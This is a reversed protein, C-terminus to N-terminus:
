ALWACLTSRFIKTKSLAVCQGLRKSGVTPSFLFMLVFFAILPSWLLVVVLWSVVVVASPSCCAHSAEKLETYALLSARLQTAKAASQLM